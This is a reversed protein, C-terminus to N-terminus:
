LLNCLFKDLRTKFTELSPSEVVERPLKNWHEVVRVTFFNRRVNLHFKKYELKHGNGRTRDSPVVSFLGAGDEQCGRKLYKYASILDGIPRMLSHSESFMMTFVSGGYEEYMRFANRRTRDNNGQSFLGVGVEFCDTKLYNYLAILDGRLRKELSFMGRERLREEYSKNEPGRVLKIARRQVCELVEIDKKYHPAWFQVCCKLHPRVLASYLSVIVERSDQYYCSHDSFNTAFNQVKMCNYDGIDKMNQGEDELCILETQSVSPSQCPCVTAM